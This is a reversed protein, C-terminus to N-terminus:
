KTRPKRPTTAAARGPTKAVPKAQARTPAKGPAKTTSKAMTAAPKVATKAVTKVAPKASARTPAKAAPKATAAVRSPQRPTRTATRAKRAAMDEATEKGINGRVTVDGQVHQFGNGTFVNGGTLRLTQDTKHTLTQREQNGSLEIAELHAAAMFQEHSLQRQQRAKSVFVDAIKNIFNGGGAGGAGGSKAGDSPNNRFEGSSGMIGTEAM